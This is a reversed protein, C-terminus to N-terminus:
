IYYIVVKCTEAATGSNVFKLTLQDTGSLPRPIYYYENTNFKYSLFNPDLTDVVIENNVTFQLTEIMEFGCWCCGTATDIVNSGNIAVKQAEVRVEAYANEIADLVGLKAAGAPIAVAPAPAAVECKGYVAIGLLLRATGSLNLDFSSTGVPVDFNYGKLRKQRKIFGRVKEISIAGLQQGMFQPNGIHSMEENFNDM